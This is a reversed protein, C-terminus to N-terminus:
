LIKEEYLKDIMKYCADIFNEAKVKINHIPILLDEEEKDYYNINMTITSEDADIEPFFDIERLYNLLAALSWCPILFDPTEGTNFFENDKFKSYPTMLPVMRRFQSITLCMDASEIPLIKALKKSQELDTYSKMVKWNRKVM